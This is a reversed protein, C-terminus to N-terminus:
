GGFLGYAMKEFLTPAWIRLVWLALTVVWLVALLWAFKHRM